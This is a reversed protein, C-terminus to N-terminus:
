DIQTKLGKLETPAMRYPAKHVPATVPELEIAFETERDPLLEPLDDSFVRPFYKVILIDEISKAGELANLSIILVFVEAEVKLSKTIRKATM